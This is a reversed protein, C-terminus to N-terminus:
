CSIGLDRFIATRRGGFLPADAGDCGVYSSGYGILAWARFRRSYGLVAYSEDLPNGAADRSGFQAMAIRSYVSRSGTRQTSVVVSSVKASITPENREVAVLLVRAIAGREQASPRRQSGAPAVVVAGALACVVGVALLRIM